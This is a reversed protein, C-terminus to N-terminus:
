KTLTKKKESLVLIPCDDNYKHSALCNATAPATSQM